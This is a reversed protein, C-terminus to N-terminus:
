TTFAITPYGEEIDGEELMVDMMRQLPKKMRIATSLMDATSNWRTPVDLVPKAYKVEEQLCIEKLKAIKRPSIRITKVGYRINDVSTKIEKLADQAALNMVHAFCRMHAEPDALYGRQLLDDIFTDNNSANDTTLALIKDKLSFDDIVHRFVSSIEIGTHVGHFPVFDLLHEKMLWNSDIYHITVAMFPVQSPSTWIDTTFSFLSDNAGIMERFRQREAEFKKIMNRKLTDASFLRIDSRLLLLM